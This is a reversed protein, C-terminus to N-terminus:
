LLQISKLGAVFRGLECLTLERNELQKELENLEERYRGFIAEALQVKRLNESLESVYDGGSRTITGKLQRLYENANEIFQDADGRTLTGRARLSSPMERNFEISPLCLAAVVGRVARSVLDCDIYEDEVRERLMKLIQASLQKRWDVLFDRVSEELGNEITETFDLLAERVAGSRVSIYTDTRTGYGGGWLKRAFWSLAGSKEYQIEESVTSGSEEVGGKAERYAEVVTKKIIARIRSELDQISDAYSDSLVESVPGVFRGVREKKKVLDHIESNRVKEIKEVACSGLREKFSEIIRLSTLLYTAQKQRVIAEKKERVNSLIEHVSDMNSLLKLNEESLPINGASFSDPYNQTLNEWVHRAGEDMREPANLNKEIPTCIGSTYIVRKTCDEILQDFVSGIEPNKSKLAILSTRLHEGHKITINNLVHRLIGGSLQKESGFLQTDVQSAVVFLERVGDNITIRDMLDMDESSIFQGSPSVIFIVDCFKLMERTRAERSEVPDNIGPTDVIKVDKLIEFPLRIHVSKTFPMYRGDVGVFDILRTSLQAFDAVEIQAASNLQDITIKSKKIRFSQDYCACLVGQKKVEMLARKAAKEQMIGEDSVEGQAAAKIKKLEDETLKKLKQEYLAANALIDRIDAETFFDVEASIAEGYSLVTLAATMPTAAKPLIAEGEFLLANLLSSKGAKVRGVIGIQLLRDAENIRDLNKQISDASGVGLENGILAADEGVLDSFETVITEIKRLLDVSQASM